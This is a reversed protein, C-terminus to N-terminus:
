PLVLEVIIEKGGQPQITQHTDNAQLTLPGANAPVSLQVIDNLDKDEGRTTIKRSPQQAQVATVETAVRKGAHMARISVLCQDAAITPHHGGVLQLYAATRNVGYVTKAKLDWVLPFAYAAPQWSSAYIWTAPQAPNANAVRDMFWAHDWGQGDPNYETFHWGSEPQTADDSGLWVEVWNHNGNITAWTPVGAIRAPIGVSRLADCLLISLGSCSAMGQQMSEFPSQNPARRRTNYKVGLTKEINQNILKAAAELSNANKVMTGFRQVFDKRWPERTEDLCAYPLVDNLFIAWPVTTAWPQAHRAQLALQINELLFEPRLTQRDQAPLHRLLFIACDRYEADPHQLLPQWTPNKELSAFWSAAAQLTAPDATPAGLPIKEDPIPCTPPMLLPAGMAMTASSLIILFRLLV